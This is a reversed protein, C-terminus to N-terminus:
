LKYSVLLTENSRLNDLSLEFSIIRCFVYVQVHIGPRSLYRNFEWHNDCLNELTVTWNVSYDLNSIKGCFRCACSPIKKTRDNIASSSNVTIVRFFLVIRLFKLERKDTTSYLLELSCASLSGPSLGTFFSVTSVSALLYVKLLLQSGYLVRRCVNTRASKWELAM